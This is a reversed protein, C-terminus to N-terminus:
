LLGPTKERHPKTRQCIDCHMVFDKVQAYLDPWWFHRTLLDLTCSVGLHGSYPPDHYLLVNTDSTQTTLCLSVVTREGSSEMLIFLAQDEDADLFFM